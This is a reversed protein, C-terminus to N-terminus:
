FDVSDIDTAAGVATPESWMGHSVSDFTMGDAIKWALKSFKRRSV